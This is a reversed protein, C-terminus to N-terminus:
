GLGVRVDGGQRRPQATRRPPQFGPLPRAPGVQADLGDVTHLARPQLVFGPPSIAGPPLGLPTACGALPRAQVQAPGVRQRPFLTVFGTACRAPLTSPGSPPPTPAVDM